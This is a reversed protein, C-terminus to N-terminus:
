YDLEDLTLSFSCMFLDMFHKVEPRDMEKLSNYISEKAKLFEKNGAKEEEICKIYACLKDAAKVYQYNM